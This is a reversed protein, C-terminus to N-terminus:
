MKGVGSFFKFKCKRDVIYNQTSEPLGFWEPLDYLIEKAISEKESLNEIEKIEFM